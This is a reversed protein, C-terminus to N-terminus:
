EVSTVLVKEVLSQKSTIQFRKESNDKTNTVTLYVTDVESPLKFTKKLNTSNLLKHYLRNGDKDRLTVQLKDGAPNDYRLTFAIDGDIIGMPTVTLEDYFDMKNGAKLTGVSLSAVFFMVFMRKFSVTRKRSVNQDM